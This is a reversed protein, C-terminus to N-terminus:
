YYIILTFSISCYRLDFRQKDIINDFGVLQLFPANIEQQLKLLQQQNIKSTYEDDKKGYRSTIAKVASQGRHVKEPRVFSGSKPYSFVVM